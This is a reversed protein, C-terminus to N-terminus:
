YEQHKISLGKLECDIMANIRKTMSAVVHGIMVRTNSYDIIDALKYSVEQKTTMLSEGQLM